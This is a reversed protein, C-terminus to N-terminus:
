IWPWPIPLVSLRSWASFIIQLTISFQEVSDVLFARQLLLAAM